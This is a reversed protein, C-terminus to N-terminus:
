PPNFSGNAEDFGVALIDGSDEDYRWGDTIDGSSSFSVVSVGETWPNKPEQQLYPGFRGDDAISGDANTKNTMVGWGDQLAALTPYRNNHQTRYLELSSRINKLQAFSGVSKADEVYNSIKPVIIAALVGLILLVIILEVLTFGLHKNKLSKMGIIM